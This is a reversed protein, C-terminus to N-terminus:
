NRLKIMEFIWWCSCRVEIINSLRATHAFNLQTHLQKEFNFRRFSKKFSSHSNFAVFEHTKHDM